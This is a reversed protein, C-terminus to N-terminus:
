LNKILGNKVSSDDIRKFWIGWIKKMEDPGTVTQTSGPGTITTVKTQANYNIYVWQGDKIEAPFAAILKDRTPGADITESFAGTIKEKTVDHRFKLAFRKDCDENVVADANKAVKVKMDHTIDYVSIIFKSRTANGTRIWDDGFASLSVLMTSLLVLVTLFAKRTM